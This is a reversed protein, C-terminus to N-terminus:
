QHALSRYHNAQDRYEKGLNDYHKAMDTNRGYHKDYLPTRPDISLASRWYLEAQKEAEIAKLEYRDALTLYEQRQADSITSQGFLAPCGCLTLTVILLGILLVKRM